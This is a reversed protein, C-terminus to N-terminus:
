GSTAELERTKEPKDLMPTLGKWRAQHNPRRRHYPPEVSGNSIRRVVSPGCNLLCGYLEM